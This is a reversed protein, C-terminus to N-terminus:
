VELESFESYIKEETKSIEKEKKTKSFDEKLTNKM